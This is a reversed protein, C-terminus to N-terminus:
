ISEGNTRIIEAYDFASDKLTRKLTQYDVYILGYRIDYGAYWEFNDMIAWYCYGIVPYGEEIAKGIWELYQHIFDIRQPDHVKGDRMVFDLGSYGNESYLFPLHYRRYAFKILYYVCEPRIAKGTQAKPMGELLLPNRGGHKPYYNTAGYLNAAFIDLPQYIIKMDEESLVDSVSEPIVNGLLPDTWRTMSMYGGDDSFTRKYATEEDNFGDVVITSLGMISTGITLPRVANERMAKVAMGHAKLMSRYVEDESCSKLDRYTRIMMQPENFVLWHDALDSYTSTMLGAYDAFDQMSVPNEWGGQDFMWQPLDYHLLTIIPMIGANVLREILDRYFAIGKKNVVGRSPIVRSWSISFRYAKLGIKKMLEIDEKYHHYHDCAIHCNEENAIKRVPMTDWISPTRGDDLYGGEIQAAASSAGWIFNEPFRMNGQSIRGM